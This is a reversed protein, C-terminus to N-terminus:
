RKEFARTLFYAGIVVGMIAHQETSLDPTSGLGLMKDYIVIKWLYAVFPFAIAPRIWATLAHRQEAVLIDRQAKLTEITVDAALRESDNKAQVKTKYADNLEKGIQKVIGGGLFNLIVGLM